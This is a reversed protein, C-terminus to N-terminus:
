KRNQKNMAACAEAVGQEPSVQGDLVRSFMDGFASWYAVLEASQPRPLGLLAAQGFAETL